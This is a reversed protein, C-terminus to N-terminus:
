KQLLLLLTKAITSLLSTVAILIVNTCMVCFALLLTDNNVM